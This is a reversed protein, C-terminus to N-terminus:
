IQCREMIKIPQSASNSYYSDSLISSTPYFTQCNLGKMFREGPYVVNKKWKKKKKGGRVHDKM